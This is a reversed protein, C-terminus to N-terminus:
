EDVLQCDTVRGNQVQIRCVQKSHDFLLVRMNTVDANDFQQHVDVRTSRDTGDRPISFYMYSGRKHFEEISECGGSDYYGGNYMQSEVYRQITYDTGAVFSPDADPAPLSQGSFSLYFRNLKLAQDEDSPILGAGGSDYSKFKSSSLATNEGARVDQFAVTLAYTSPSVSFNKQGFHTTDIKESQCRTQELDLFYSINDARMGEVTCCYFYCDVIKLQYDAPVGGALTPNKSAQGLISEIARKQFSASTQPRLILDFEGAPIAHPVKFISLPPQYITEFAGVRRSPPAVVPPNTRVRSFRITDASVIDESIVARVTMTANANVVLVELKVNLGDTVGATLVLQDGVRFNVDTDPVAGGSGASFTVVGTSSNYAVENTASYGIATDVSTVEQAITPVANRVISGDSATEAQRMSQDAQWWNTSEGISELWSKSKSLRTELSDIQPMFDAVRSITKGAVRFEANQFLNSMMGMNPAINDTFEIPTSGDGKTLQFRTRIYSRSPMWWRQGSTSFRFHIDGNAFNNGTIDRTPAHQDYGMRSTGESTSSLESTSTKLDFISTM